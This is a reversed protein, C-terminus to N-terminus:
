PSANNNIEVDELDSRLHVNAGEPDHVLAIRVWRRRAPGNVVQRKWGTMREVVVGVSGTDAGRRELPAIGDSCFNEALAADIGTGYNFELSTTNSGREPVRASM